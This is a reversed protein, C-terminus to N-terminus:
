NIPNSNSAVRNYFRGRFLMRKKSEDQYDEFATRNHLVNNCIVGEGANLSYHFIYSCDQLVERLFALAHQVTKDQKWVINRQRATYRMCLAQSDADIYFVPGTQAPRIQKGNLENAPIMMVDDHMLASIYDPNQDRLLIYAIEPDLYSNEGGMKAPRVCHMLFAHIRQQNSNYYGDTHWNLPKNTYPIYPSQQKGKDTIVSIRDEDACLNGDLQHLGLQLAISNVIDRDNQDINTCRYIAINAKSCSSQLALLENDMMNIPNNLEIILQGADDPYKYLKQARWEEYSHNEKLLYHQM